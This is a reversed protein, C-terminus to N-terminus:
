VCVCVCLRTFWSRGCTCASQPFYPTHKFLIHVINTYVDRGRHLEPGLCHHRATASLLQTYIDARGRLGRHSCHVCVCVRVCARVCVCTCVRVCACVCVCARVCVCVCVCMCVCVEIRISANWSDPDFTM